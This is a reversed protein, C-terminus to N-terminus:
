RSLIGFLAILLVIGYFGFCIITLIGYFRFCAKLSKFSETLSETGKNSLYSIAKSAFNLLNWTPFFFLAAITLYLLAFIGGAAGGFNQFVPSSDLFKSAFILIGLAILVLIGVFVLGTIALFRAWKSASMLYESAEQGLGKDNPINIFDSDLSEM